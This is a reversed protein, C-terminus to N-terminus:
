KDRIKVGKGLPAVRAPKGAKVTKIKDPTLSRVQLVERADTKDEGALKVARTWLEV